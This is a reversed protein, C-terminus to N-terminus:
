NQYKLKNVLSGSKTDPYIAKALGAGIFPTRKIVSKGLADFRGKEKPKNIVDGIGGALEDLDSFIPGLATSSIKGLNKRGVSEATDGPLGFMSAQMWNAMIRDFAANGTGIQEEGRESIAKEIDGSVLGKIAAKVDGSAEGMGQYSALITGAKIAKSKLDPEAKVARVMNKTNLFAFRKLLLPLRVLKNDSYFAKSLALRSPVGSVLEAARGSAFELQKETLKGQKLVEDVPGDVFASLKRKWKPDSKAMQFLKEAEARGAISEVTRVFKETANTGWYTGFKESGIEKALGEKIINLSGSKTAYDASGHPDKLVKYIAKATNKVGLNAASGALDITNTIAQLSLKTAATVGTAAKYMRGESDPRKETRELYEMILKKAAAPDSTKGVMQSILSNDDAVDMPGYKKARTIAKSMDMQYKEIAELSEEYGEPLNFDRTHQGPSFREGKERINKMMAQVKVPSNGAKLLKAELSDLDKFLEPNYRRPYYEGKHKQFAVNEGKSNKMRVDSAVAMDGLEDLSGRLKTYAEAVKPSSAKSVPIKGDLMRVVELQEGKDLVRRVERVKLLHNGALRASETSEGTMLDALKKGMPGLRRLETEGSVALPKYISDYAATGRLADRTQKLLGGKSESGKGELEALRKAVYEQRSDRSIDMGSEMKDVVSQKPIGLRKADKKQQATDWKQQTKDISAKSKASDKAHKKLFTDRAEIAAKQRADFIEKALDKIPRDGGFTPTLKNRDISGKGSEFAPTKVPAPKAPAESLPVAKFRDISGKVPASEQMVEKVPGFKPNKPRATLGEGGVVTTAPKGWNRREWEAEDIVELNVRPVDAGQKPYGEAMGRLAAVNPAEPRLRNPVTAMLPDDDLYDAVNGGRIVRNKIAQIAEPSADLPVRVVRTKKKGTDEDIYKVKIKKTPGKGVSPRGTVEGRAKLDGPDAKAAERADKFKGKSQSTVSQVGQSRPLNYPEEVPRTGLSEFDWPERPPTVPPLEVGRDVIPNTTGPRKLNLSDLTEATNPDFADGIVNHGDWQNGIFRATGPNELPPPPAPLFKQAPGRRAITEAQGEATRPDVGAFETLQRINPIPQPVPPRDPGYQKPTPVLRSQPRLRSQELLATENTLDKPGFIGDRPPTVDPLDPIANAYRPNPVFPDFGPAAGSVPLNVNPLGPIRVNPPEVDPVVKVKPTRSRAGLGGFVVEPIGALYNGESIDQLGGGATAASIGRNIGQIVKGKGFGTAADAVNLPSLMEGFGENAGQRFGQRISNDIDPNGEWALSALDKLAGPVQKIAGWTGGAKEMLTQKPDVRTRNTIFEPAKSVADWARGTLSRPAPEGTILRTLDNPEKNSTAQRQKGLIEDIEDDTPPEDNDWDLNFSRKTSPDTIQFRKQPM